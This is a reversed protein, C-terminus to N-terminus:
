QLPALGSCGSNGDTVAAGGDHACYYRQQAAGLKWGSARFEILELLAQRVDASRNSDTFSDRLCKALAASLQADARQISKGATMFVSRLCQIEATADQAPSRLMIHCCECLLAALSFIRGSNEASSQAGSVAALLEALFAVYATWSRGGPIRAPTRATCRPLLLERRKFWESCTEVLADLFASTRGRKILSTCFEAASAANNSDKTAGDCISFVLWQMQLANLSDPDTLAKGIISLRDSPTSVPDRKEQSSRSNPQEAGKVENVAQQRQQMIATEAPVSSPLPSRMFCGTMDTLSTKSFAANWPSSNSVGGGGNATAPQVIRMPASTMLDSTGVNMRAEAARVVPPRYIQLDPKSIGVRRASASTNVSELYEGELKQMQSDRQAESHQLWHCGADLQPLVNSPPGCGRSVPTTAAPKQQQPATCPSGLIPAHANLKVRGRGRGSSEKVVEVPQAADGGGFINM